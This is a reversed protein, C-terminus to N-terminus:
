CRTPSTSRAGAGLAWMRTPRSIRCVFRESPPPLRWGAAWGFGTRRARPRMALAAIPQQSFSGAVIPDGSQELVQADGEGFRPHPASLVWGALAAGVFLATTLASAFIFFPRKWM